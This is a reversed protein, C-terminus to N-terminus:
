KVLSDYAWHAAAGAVDVIAHVEEVGPNAVVFAEPLPTFILGLEAAAVLYRVPHARVDQATVRGFQQAFNPKASQQADTFARAGM